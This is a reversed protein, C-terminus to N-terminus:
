LKICFIIINEAIFLFFIKCKCFAMMFKNAPFFRPKPSPSGFLRAEQFFMYRDEYSRYLVCSKKEVLLLHSSTWTVQDTWRTCQVPGVLSNSKKDNKNWDTVEKKGDIWPKPNRHTNRNSWGWQVVQCICFGISM